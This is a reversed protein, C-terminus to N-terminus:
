IKNPSNFQHFKWMEKSSELRHWYFTRWNEIANLFSYLIKLFYEFKISSLSNLAHSHNSLRRYVCSFNM